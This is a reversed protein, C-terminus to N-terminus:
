LSTYGILFRPSRTYAAALTGSAPSRLVTGLVHRMATVAQWDAPNRPISRELPKPFGLMTM